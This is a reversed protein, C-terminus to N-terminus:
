APLEPEHDDEWGSTRQKTQGMMGWAVIAHCAAIRDLLRVIVSEMGSMCVASKSRKPSRKSI